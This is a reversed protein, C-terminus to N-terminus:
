SELAKYIVLHNGDSKKGMRKLWESMVQPIEEAKLIQSEAIVHGELNTLNIRYVM